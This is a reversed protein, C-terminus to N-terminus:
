DKDVEVKRTHTYSFSVIMLSFCIRYLLSASAASFLGNKSWSETTGKRGKGVLLEHVREEM